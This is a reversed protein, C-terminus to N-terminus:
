SLINRESSASQALPPSQEEEELFLAVEVISPFPSVVVTALLQFVNSGPFRRSTNDENTNVPERTSSVVGFFYSCTNKAGTKAEM